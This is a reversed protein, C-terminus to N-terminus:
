NVIKLLTRMACTGIGGACQAGRMCRDGAAGAVAPKPDRLGGGPLAAGARTQREGVRM